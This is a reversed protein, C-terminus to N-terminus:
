FFICKLIKLDFISGGISSEEQVDGKSQADDHAAVSTNKVEIVPSITTELM